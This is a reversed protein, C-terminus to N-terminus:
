NHSHCSNFTEFFEHCHYFDNIDMM